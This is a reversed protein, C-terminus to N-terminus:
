KKGGVGGIRHKFVRYKRYCINDFDSSAKDSEIDYIVQHIIEHSFVQMFLETFTMGYEKANTKIHAVNIYMKRVYTDICGDSAFKLPNSWIIEIDKM